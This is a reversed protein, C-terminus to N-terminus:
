GRQSIRLLCGLLLLEQKKTKKGREGVRIMTPLAPKYKDGLELAQECFYRLFTLEEEPTLCDVDKELAAEWKTENDSTPNPTSNGTTSPTGPRPAERARQQAARLRECATANTDSRLKALSDKSFSWIRFQTSSRYIEDELM